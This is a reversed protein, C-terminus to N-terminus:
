QRGGSRCVSGRLLGPEQGQRPVVDSLVRPPRLRVDATSLKPPAVAELRDQANYYRLQESM